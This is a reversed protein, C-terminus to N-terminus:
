DTYSYDLHKKLCSILSDYTCPKALYELGLNRLRTIDDNLASATIAVLPIQKLNVDQQLLRAAEYGDVEPMVMDLLILDPRSSSRAIKLALKGNTAVKIRYIGDLITTLIDINEVVDDVVLITGKDLSDRSM